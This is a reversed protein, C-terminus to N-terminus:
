RSSSWVAGAERLKRAFRHMHPDFREIPEALLQRSADGESRRGRGAAQVYAASREGREVSASRCAWPGTRDVACEPPSELARGPMEASNAAIRV